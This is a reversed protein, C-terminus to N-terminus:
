PGPRAGPGGLQPLAALRGDGADAGHVIASARLVARSDDDGHEGIVLIACGTSGNTSVVLAKVLVTRIGSPERPPVVVTSTGDPAKETVSPGASVSAM